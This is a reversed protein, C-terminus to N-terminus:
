LSLTTSLITINLNTHQGSSLISVIANANHGKQVGLGYGVGDIYSRLCFQEMELDEISDDIIVPISTTATTAGATFTANYRGPTFDAGALLNFYDYVSFM